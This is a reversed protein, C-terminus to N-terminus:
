AKGFATGLLNRLHICNKSVLFSPRLIVCDTCFPLTDSTRLYCGPCYYTFHTSYALQLLALLFSVLQSPATVDAATKM